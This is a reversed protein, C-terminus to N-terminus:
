DDSGKVKWNTHDVEVKKWDCEDAVFALTYFTIIFHCQRCFLLDPHDFGQLIRIRIM